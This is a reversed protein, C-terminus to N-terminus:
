PKFTGKNDIINQFIAIARNKVDVTHNLRFNTVKKNKTIPKM